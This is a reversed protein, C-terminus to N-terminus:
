KDAPLIERDTKKILSIKTLIVVVVPILFFLLTSGSASVTCAFLIVLVCIAPVSLGRAISTVYTEYSIKESLLRGSGAAYIWALTTLIGIIFLNGAYFIVAVTYESYSGVLDTTFPVLAVFFLTLVNFWIYTKDVNRIYSVQRHHAMWFSILVFFAIAYHMIQPFTVSLSDIFHGDVGVPPLEGVDITLVALTLAIAYIGDTLAEIRHKSLTRIESM